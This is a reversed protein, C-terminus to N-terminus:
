GAVPLMGMVIAEYRSNLVTVMMRLISAAAALIHDPIGSSNTAAPPPSITALNRDGFHVVHKSTSICRRLRALASKGDEGIGSWGSRCSFSM